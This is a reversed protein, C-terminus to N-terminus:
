VMGSKVGAPPQFLAQPNTAPVSTFQTRLPVPQVVDPPMMPAGTISPATAREPDRNPFIVGYCPTRVSGPIPSLRSGPEGGGGGGSLYTRMRRNPSSLNTRGALRPVGLQDFYRGPLSVHLAKHAAM